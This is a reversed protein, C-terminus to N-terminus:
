IGFEYAHACTRKSNSNSNSCSKTNTRTNTNTNTNPNKCTIRKFIRQNFYFMAHCKSRPCLRTSRFIVLQKWWSPRDQAAPSPMSIPFPFHCTSARRCSCAFANLRSRALQSAIGGCPCEALASSDPKRFLWQPIIFGNILM